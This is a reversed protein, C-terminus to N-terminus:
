ARGRRRVAKAKAPRAHTKPRAEIPRKYQQLSQMHGALVPILFM